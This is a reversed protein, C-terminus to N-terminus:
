KASTISKKKKVDRFQKSAEYLVISGAVSCNLSEVDAMMPITVCQGYRSYALKRAHVSIGHTEGGIVIVTHKNVYNVDDYNSVNLPARKFLKHPVASDRDDLDINDKHDLEKDSDFDSYDDDSESEDSMLDDDDYMEESELKDLEDIIESSGALDEMIEDSPKRSDAVFIHAKEPIHGDIDAWSIDTVIPIRYHCGAGSRLVKPSWADVCGAFIILVHHVPDYNLRRTPFGVTHNGFLDLM